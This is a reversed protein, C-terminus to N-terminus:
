KTAFAGALIHVDGTDTDRTYIVRQSDPTWGGNHVHWKGDGHTVKVPEGTARPLADPGKPRELPVLHLNMNYHSLASVYSVHKGDPAVALERHSGTMLVVEDGTELNVARMEGPKRNGGTSIIVRHADLYWGFNAVGALAERPEGGKPDIVWLAEDDGSPACFGIVSGDPAWRPSWAGPMECLKRPAGGEASMLWAQAAGDRDSIFVIERGDPSWDADWDGSDRNTLQVERGEDLDIRWLESNGTRSSMYVVRKGDPSVRPGFNDLTHQTLRQERGKLDDLYLDTQHAFTSYLIRGDASPIPGNEERSGATLQRRRGSPYDLIWLGGEEPSYVITRDGPGWSPAMYLTEERYFEKPEGGAAPMVMIASGTTSAGGINAEAGTVGMRLFLIRDGAFSYSASLDRSPLEPHTLQTETRTDLDIKWIATHGNENRRSFLLTRGDPSWPRSGMSGYLSSGAVSFGLDVLKQTSGGLPPIVYIATEDGRGSAFAIWRNDPSWRPIVDDAPSEVLHIPDGGATSVIFVDMPGAASHSYAIFNGDPSWSGAEELGLLGTVPRTTVPGIETSQNRSSLIVWVVAALVVVALVGVLWLLPKYGRAPSAAFSGTHAASSIAAQEFEGSEVEKELGELENHVDRATQFRKDRNKELCRGIVRALHRPLLPKLDTVTAPTDKLISSITSISTDGKFPREGTAMEYLVVGLSFIDTRHDLPM